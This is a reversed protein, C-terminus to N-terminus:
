QTEKMSVDANNWAYEMQRATQLALERGALKAVLHLAM